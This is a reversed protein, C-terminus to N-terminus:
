NRERARERVRNSVLIPGNVGKEWLKAFSFFFGMVKPKEQVKKQKNRQMSNESTGGFM